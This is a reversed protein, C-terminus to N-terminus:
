YNYLKKENINRSFHGTHQSCSWPSYLREQYITCSLQYCPKNLAINYIFMHVIIKHHFKLHYFPFPLPVNRSFPKENATELNFQFTSLQIEPPLINFNKFWFHHITEELNVLIYKKKLGLSSLNCKMKRKMPM